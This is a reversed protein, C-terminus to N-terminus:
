IWGNKKTRTPTSSGAQGCACHEMSEKRRRHRLKAAPTGCPALLVADKNNTGPVRVARSPKGWKRCAKGVVDARLGLTEAIVAYSKQDDIMDLIERMFPEASRPRLEDPICSDCMSVERVPPVCDLGCGQCQIVPRPRQDNEAVRIRERELFALGGWIGAERGKIGAGRCEQVVPCGYCIRKAALVDDGANNHQGPSGPVMEIDLERCRAMLRWDGSVNLM